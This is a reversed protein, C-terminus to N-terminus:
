VLNEVPWRFLKRLKSEYFGHRRVLRQKPKLRLTTWLAPTMTTWKPDAFQTTPPTKGFTVMYWEGSDDEDYHELWVLRNPPIEFRECVQFCIDEVANTISIGPNGAVSICAIGMATTQSIKSQSDTISCQRYDAQKPTVM